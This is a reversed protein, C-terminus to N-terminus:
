DASEQISEETGNETLLEKRKSYDILMDADFDTIRRSIDSFQDVVAIQKVKANENIHLLTDRKNLRNDIVFTRFEMLTEKCAEYEGVMAYGECEVQVVNTIYILDQFADNATIESDKKGALKTDIAMKVIGKQSNEEIAKMNETFNRMLTRKADTATGVVELVAFERLRADRILRAQMLKDWASEALALRDNQLEKHISRIADGIYEIEDLIQALQAHVALNNLSQIVQPNLNLEKLRVQKVFGEADRITPLIEGKKDITFWLVGKAILDAIYKDYDAVLYTETQALAKIVDAIAPLSMEINKWKGFYNFLAKNTEYSIVTLDERNPKWAEIKYQFLPVPLYHDQVSIPLNCNDSHFGCHPCTVARDSIKTGCEPCLILSM